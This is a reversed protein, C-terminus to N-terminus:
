SELTIQEGALDVTQGPTMNLVRETQFATVATIGLTTVGLGAHALVLGYTALPTTRVFRRWDSSSALKWRRALVAVAGAILLVGLALGAGTLVFKTGFALAAAVFAFGAILLPVRLRAVVERWASRKWNLMPGFSALILLPVFIPVFTMRYYPPGVSVPAGKVLDVFVPYFTGLFVAATAALLFVNNLTIGGERSLPAFLAGTRMAPARWAFLALGSGTLAGVIALIYVGRKADLAFAHVSTLV